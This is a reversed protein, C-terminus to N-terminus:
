LIITARHFERDCDSREKRGGGGGKSGISAALRRRGQVDSLGPLRATRGLETGRSASRGSSEFHERGINGHLADFSTSGDAGPVNGEFGLTELVDELRVSAGQLGLDFQVNHLIYICYTDSQITDIVILSAFRITYFRITDFRLSLSTVRFSLSGSVSVSVSM